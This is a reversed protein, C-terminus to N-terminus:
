IRQFRNECEDWVTTSTAFGVCNNLIYPQDVNRHFEICLQETRYAILLASVKAAIELGATDCPVRHRQCYGCIFVM